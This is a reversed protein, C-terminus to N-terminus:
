TLTTPPKYLDALNVSNKVEEEDQGDDMQDQDFDSESDSGEKIM